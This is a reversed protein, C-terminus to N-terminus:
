QLHFVHILPRYAYGDADAQLESVYLLQNQEDYGVGGINLNSQTLDVYWTAYPVVDWPQMTGAYVAALDNLDYAWIQEQYPFAHTGKSTDMPDYCYIGGDGDDQGALDPDDTGEGYCFDGLGTRGFYLLSRTGSVAAFGGITTTGGWVPNQQDYNGLTPHDATYYVLGTAPVPPQELASPTFSFADPGWSTRGVIPICCQGTLAEGGLAAQWEPPVAALWGSVFGTPPMADLGQVSPLSLSLSRTYHSVTQANEADYYIYVTGILMDDAVLLGGLLVSGGEGEWDSLDWLLGETPDAFDQLVPATPLADIGGTPDGPTPISLEAIEQDYPHGGVFLSNNTPNFAIPSGGFSFGNNSGFLGDPLRFAGLYQLSAAQLLPLTSPDQSDSGGNVPSAAGAAANPSSKAGSAHVTGATPSSQGAAHLSPASVVALISMLISPTCM